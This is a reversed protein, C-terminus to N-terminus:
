ADDPPGAAGALDTPKIKEVNFKTARDRMTKFVEEFSPAEGKIEETPPNEEVIHANMKELLAANSYTLRVQM